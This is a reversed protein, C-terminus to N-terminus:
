RVCRISSSYLKSSGIIDTVDEAIRIRYGNTIGTIINGSTSSWCYGRLDRYTLSGDSNNLGGSAPLFVCGKMSNPLLCTAHNYGYFRGHVANGRTGATVWTSGIDLLAQFEDQTPLRWDQPCPNVTWTMASDLVHNWAPTTILGDSSYATLRNWQYLKTYMDARAAFTNPEDVNANAWCLGAIILNCGVPTVYGTFTITIVNSKKEAEGACERAKAMRYFAVDDGYAATAPVTYSDKTAGPIPSNDRYWQYTIDTVASAPATSIITYAQGAPATLAQARASAAAIAVTAVTLIM